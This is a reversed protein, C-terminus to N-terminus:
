KPGEQTRTKNASLNYPRDPLCCPEGGRIRYTFVRCTQTAAFQPTHTNSYVLPELAGMDGVMGVSQTAHHWQQLYKHEAGSMLAAVFGPCMLYCSARNCSKKDKEEELWAGFADLSTLPLTPLTKPHGGSMMRVRELLPHINLSCM